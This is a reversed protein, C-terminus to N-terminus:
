ICQPKGQESNLEEFSMAQLGRPVEQEVKEEKLVLGGIVPGVHSSLPTYIIFSSYEHKLIFQSLCFTETKIILKIPYIV